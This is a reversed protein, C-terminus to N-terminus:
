TYLALPPDAGAHARDDRVMAWMYGTKTKGTGPALVKVTTEDVFLRASALADARMRNTIPM